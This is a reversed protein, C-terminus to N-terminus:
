VKVWQFVTHDSNLKVMKHQGVQLSDVIAGRNIYFSQNSFYAVVQGGDTFSLKDKSLLMKMSSGDAGIVLGEEGLKIYTKLFNYTALQDGLNQVLLASRAELAELDLQYQGGSSVFAEYSNKISEAMERIAAAEEETTRNGIEEWIDSKDNEYSGNDVKDKLGLDALAQTYEPSVTWVFDAPNMTDKSGIGVYQPVSLLKDEQQNSTWTTVNSGLELKERSWQITKTSTQSVPFRLVRFSITTTDTPISFTVKALGSKGAPIINSSKDEWSGNPAGPRSLRVYIHVGVDSPATLYASYTYNTSFELEPPTQTANTARTGDFWGTGSASQVENSTGLLLNENPYTDTMDVLGNPDNSWRKFTGKVKPNESWVYDAPDNSDKPSYGIYAMEAKVPNDLYSPINLTATDSEEIKFSHIGMTVTNASGDRTPYVYFAVVENAWSARDTFTITSVIQYTGNGLDTITSINTPATGQEADKGERLFYKGGIAYSSQLKSTEFVITITYKTNLKYEIGRTNGTNSIRGFMMRALANNSADFKFIGNEVRLNGTGTYTNFGTMDTFNRSNRSLNEKPYDRTFDVSGDIKNSWATYLQADELAPTWATAKNGLELKVLRYRLSNSISRLGLGIKTTGAPTTSTLNFRKWSNGYSGYVWEYNIRTGSSNFYQVLIMQTGNITTNTTMCDFSVTFQQNEGIDVFNLETYSGTAVEIWSGTAEKTIVTTSPLSRFAKSSFNFTDPQLNRGGIELDEASELIPITQEDLLVSTGGALYMRVKIFKADSPVAYAYTSQNASSTYKTTYTTGDTSTSIIFRGAYLASNGTGIKSYSNFTVSTPTITGTASRKVVNVSPSVWYSTAQGQVAKLTIQDSTTGNTYTTRDIQWLWRSTETTIPQSTLWVANDWTQTPATLTSTLQWKSSVSAIGLGDKGTAPRWTYDSPNQSDTENSDIYNGIYTPYANDFDEYPSPTNITAVDGLEVKVNKITPIRGSDYVGYFGLLAQTMTGSQLKPTVTISYRKYDTTAQVTTAGISYKAGSGNQSYVQIPGSVASKLDFSITYEIGIGYKEFIPALDWRSDNVFERTSTAEFRSVPLLNENPYSTTFRDTGDASWAYAQHIFSSLGDNVNSITIEGRSIVAM